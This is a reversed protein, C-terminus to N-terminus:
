GLERVLVYRSVCPFVGLEAGELEAAEAVELHAPLADIPGDPEEGADDTLREHEEVM